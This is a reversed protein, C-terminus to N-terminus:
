HDHIFDQWGWITRDSWNRAQTWVLFDHLDGTKDFRTILASFMDMAKRQASLDHVLAKHKHSYQILQLTAAEARAAM